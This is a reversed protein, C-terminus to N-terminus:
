SLKLSNKRKLSTAGNLAGISIFLPLERNLGGHAIDVLLIFCCLFLLFQLESDTKSMKWARWLSVLLLGILAGGGLWGLEVIAQVLVNHVEYGRLCGLESFAGLGYGFLGVSPALAIADMYLAERIVVSNRLNVKLTCSPM